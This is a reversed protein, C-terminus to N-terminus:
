LPSAKVGTVQPAEMAVCGQPVDPPPLESFVAKTLEVPCGEHRSAGHAVVSSTLDRNGVLDVEPDNARTWYGGIANTDEPLRDDTLRRLAERIVPEVARDRWSTRSTRISQLPLM